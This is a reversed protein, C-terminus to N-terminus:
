PAYYNINSDLELQLGWANIFEELEFWVSIENIVKVIPIGKDEHFMVVVDHTMKSTLIDGYRINGNDRPLKLGTELIKM